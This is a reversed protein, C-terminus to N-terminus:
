AGMDASPSRCELCLRQFRGDANFGKGCCLCDRRVSERHSHRGGSAASRTGNFENSNMRQKVSSAARGLARSMEEPTMRHQNAKLYADERETFRGKVPFANQLKNRLADVTRVPVGDHFEKNLVGVMYANKERREKLAVLRQFEAESWPTHGWTTKGQVRM